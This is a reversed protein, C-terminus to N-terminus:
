KYSWWIVIIVYRNLIIDCYIDLSFLDTWCMCYNVPQQDTPQSNPDALQSDSFKSGSDSWSWVSDRQLRPMSREFNFCLIECHKVLYRRHWLRSNPWLNKWLFGFKLITGLELPPFISSSVKSFMASIKVIIGYCYYFVSFTSHVVIYRFLYRYRAPLM